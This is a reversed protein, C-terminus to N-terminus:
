LVFYDLWKIAIKSWVFTEGFKRMEKRDGVPERLHKITAEVWENQAKEDSLGFSRQGPMIWNDKNKPSHVKVGHQISENLAGFDTAIPICGATQAKKVSICDIEAFETPYLLLNARTYWELCEHQPVKGLCEIGAEKIESEIKDKWRMGVPDRENSDVFNDWGYMWVLRAEPVKEKVRKWLKPLVDLSREPSSTNICLLPEKKIGKNQANLIPEIDLGNPIVAIKENPINPFLSRHFKTKVLVKNIKELRKDTFEAPSIVDHLDVIINKCNIEYDSMMPTRWLIMTDWKDRRNFTWFPRYVVNPEKPDVVDETGCNNYVTVKYGNKAWQRSLHVVAEESGGVGKTEFTSASWIFTTNGCWYAIQKGDTEDRIFLENRRRCVEPHAKYEKPIDLIAKRKEDDTKLKDMELCKEVVVKAIELEKEITEIWKDLGSLKPSIKQVGRLMPLASEPRGMETYIEALLLMPNRDYDRPNRVMTSVAHGKRVLGRMTYLSANENDGWRRFMRGLALYGDPMDPMEGIALKCWREAKKRDNLEEWVGALWLIALFRDHESGSEDIFTELEKAGEERKGAGLLSQALTFRSRPDNPNLERYAEAIELNRGLALKVREDTTLHLRDIDKDILHMKVERQSILDEHISGKWVFSGDNRVLQTKIHEVRPEGVEDFDYLYHFLYADAPNQKIVNKLKDLGRWVDDADCWLIYDFEKPVRSFSLNRAVSFDNPWEFHFCQGNWKKIFDEAEKYPEEGKKYSVSVFLGDVFPAVTALCRDLLNIEERCGKVILALAIKMNTARRTLM